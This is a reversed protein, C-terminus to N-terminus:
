KAHGRSKSKKKISKRFHEKKGTSKRINEKVKGYSKKYKKNGVVNRKKSLVKVKVSHNNCEHRNQTM